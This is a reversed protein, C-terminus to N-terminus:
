SERAVQFLQCFVKIGFLTIQSSLKSTHPLAYLTEKETYRLSSSLDLVINFEEKTQHCFAAM